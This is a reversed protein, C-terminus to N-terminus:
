QLSEVFAGNSHASGEARRPEGQRGTPITPSPATFSSGFDCLVLFDSSFVSARLLGVKSSSPPPVDPESAAAGKGHSADSTGKIRAASTNTIRKGTVDESSTHVKWASPHNLERKIFWGQSEMVEKTKGTIQELKKWQTEKVAAEKEPKKKRREAAAACRASLPRVM